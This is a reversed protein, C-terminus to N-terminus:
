AKKHKNLTNIIESGVPPCGKVYVGKKKHKSTCNGICLTNEPLDDHGSGIAVHVPKGSFYDGLRAGHKKLFLLTTSQCASCSAKDLVKVGPFEISLNKPPEKFPSIYQEWNDPNICIKDMDIVGYGREAGLKLHPVAYPNIGMIRCAVADTAFADTGVIVMNLERPTGASPGLGELGFTCDIISLQPLLVGAMDAIAHNIPKEQSGKVPPLMHLVVKSRRWLCGKMNKVALTVGTHMHTKMVPISIIMDYEFIEPCVKLSKLAIGAPIHAEVFDREDMDILQCNKRRAVDAIGSSEFAEMTNIGTIPSEGIAVHAAGALRFADVAAAVVEPHTVVASGPLAIRGVNPKLLIRKGKAPSLDINALADLTNQYPGNGKTIFVRPLSNHPRFPSDTKM